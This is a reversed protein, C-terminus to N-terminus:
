KDCTPRRLTGGDIHVTCRGQQLAHEQSSKQKRERSSHAERSAERGGTINPREQWSKEANGQEMNLRTQSSWVQHHHTQDRAFCSCRRHPVPVQSVQRQAAGPSPGPGQRLEGRGPFFLSQPYVWTGAWAPGQLQIPPFSGLCPSCARVRPEAGLPWSCLQTCASFHAGLEARHPLTCGLGRHVTTHSM